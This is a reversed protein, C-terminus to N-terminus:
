FPTRSLTLSIDRGDVQGEFRATGDAAFHFRLMGVEGIKLPELEYRVGLWPSGSSRYVRAEWTNPDIWSGGPMVLWTPAGSADYTFLVAFITRYQQLLALGWGSQGAGAWWMDGHDSTAATDAPGFLLRSLRKRDTKGAITYDLSLDNGGNITLTATGVPAGITVKSPDFATFPTGRPSYVAGTFATRDANWAGGSIMYWTANGAEDYAYIVTFLTDRHQVISV